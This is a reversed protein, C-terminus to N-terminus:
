LQSLANVQDAISLRCQTWIEIRRDELGRERDELGGIKQDRRTLLWAIQPSFLRFLSALWRDVSRRRSGTDIRLTSAAEILSPAPRLHEGTVWRNTASARLPQGFADISISALHSPKDSSGSGLFVHFHGHEGDMAPRTAHCHYYYSVGSAADRADRAPYHRWETAPTSGLLATVVNRGRLALRRTVDLCELAAEELQRQREPPLSRVLTSAAPMRSTTGDHGRGRGSM